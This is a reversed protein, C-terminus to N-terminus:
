RPITGRWDCNVSVYFPEGVFDEATRIDTLFLALDDPESTEYWIKKLEGNKKKKWILKWKVKWEGPVEALHYPGFPKVVDLMEEDIMWAVSQQASM